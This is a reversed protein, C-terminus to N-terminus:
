SFKWNVKMHDSGHALWTTLYFYHFIVAVSVCCMLLFSYNWQIQGYAQRTMHIQRSIGAPSTVAEAAGVIMSPKWKRCPAAPRQQVRVVRYRFRNSNDQEALLLRDPFGLM